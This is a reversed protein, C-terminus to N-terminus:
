YSLLSPLLLLTTSASFCCAGGTDSLLVMGFIRGICDKQFGTLPKTQGNCTPHVDAPLCLISYLLFIRYVSYLIRTFVCYFCSPICSIFLLCFVSYLFLLFYFFPSVEPDPLRCVQFAVSGTTQITAQYLFAVRFHVQNLCVPVPDM